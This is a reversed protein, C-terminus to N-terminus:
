LLVTQKYEGFEARMVNCIEGLTAYAKVADLIYPMLNDDSRCAAGLAALTQAVLENDRREKLDAIKRAQREGVSPDVRLLGTPRPEDVQFKNMGVIVRKGTEIDKQYSYAADMIEQQMYGREIAAPSGGLEDIKSILKMAEDELRNTLSEM